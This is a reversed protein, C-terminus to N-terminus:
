NQPMERPWAPLAGPCCVLAFSQVRVPQASDQQQTVGDRSILFEATVGDRSILLEGIGGGLPQARVWDGAIRHLGRPDQLATAEWGTLIWICDNGLVTGQFGQLMKERFSPDRLLAVSSNEM